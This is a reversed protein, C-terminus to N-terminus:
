GSQWDGGAAISRDTAARYVGGVRGIWQHLKCCTRVCVVLEGIPAITVTSRLFVTVSAPSNAGGLGLVYHVGPQEENWIM